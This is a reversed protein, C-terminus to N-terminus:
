ACVKQEISPANAGFGAPDYDVGGCVKTSRYPLRHAAIRKAYGRAMLMHSSRSPTCTSAAANILAIQERHLLYNLDELHLNGHALPLANPRETLRISAPM